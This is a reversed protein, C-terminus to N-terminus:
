GRRMRQYTDSRSFKEDMVQSAIRKITPVIETKLKDVGEPTGNQVNMTLNLNVAPGSSAAPTAVATPVNVQPVAVPGGSAYGPMGRRLAEVAAVGGARAVDDQSWVVEGKHVVGAPQDKGGPGTYGGGSFGLLGSISGGLASGGSSGSGAAGFLPGLAAEVLGNVAMDILKDSMRMLANGLAETASAGDRMDTIFGKLADRSQDRMDSILKQTEQLRANQDALRKIEQENEPTLQVGARKAATLLEQEKRAKELAEGYLGTLTIENELDENEQRVTHLRQLFEVQVAAKAYADALKGVAKQESETVIRGEKAATMALAYQLEAAAKSRERVYTTADIVELEAQLAATRKRIADAERDYQSKKVDAKDDGTPKPQYDLKGELYNGLGAGYDRQALSRQASVTRAEEHYREPFLQMAKGLGESITTSLYNFAQSVKGAMDSALAGWASRNEAVAKRNEELSRTIGTIADNADKGAVRAFGELADRLSVMSDDSVKVEDGFVGYAVTLGGVAAALLTLPNAAGITAAAFASMRLAASGLVAGVAVALADLNKSIKVIGDAVAQSAGNAQDAQGIFQVVNNRLVTFAEDITAPMQRFIRDIKAGGDLMAGALDRIQLKGEAAMKVIEGKSVKLREALLEQVVGANEMVTRFEDGDLKGKQLAQSFQLITSAQESASASGLKLAKALTSTIKAAAESDYGYDRIAAATRIYTKTYAEADIRADSALENLEEAPKLAIGFIRGSADISRSLRTWSNAYDTVARAGLYTGIGGLISGMSGVSRAVHANTRAFRRDIAALARETNRQSQLLNRDYRANDAKLQLIYTDLDVAM